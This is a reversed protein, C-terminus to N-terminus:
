PVIGRMRKLALRLDDLPTKASKKEIAHLLWAFGASVCLFVRFQIGGHPRKLEWLGDGMPRVSIRSSRLGEEALLSLDLAIRAFAKPRRVALEDLFDKVPGSTGGPYYAIGLLSM